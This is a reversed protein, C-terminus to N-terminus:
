ANEGPNMLRFCKRFYRNLKISQRHNADLNLKLESRVASHLRNERMIVYLAYLASMRSQTFITAKSFLYWGYSEIKPKLLREEVTLKFLAFELVILGASILLSYHVVFYETLYRITVILILSALLDLGVTLLNVKRCVNIHKLILKEMRNGQQIVDSYNKEKDPLQTLEGQNPAFSITAIFEIMRHSKWYAWKLSHKTHQIIIDQM